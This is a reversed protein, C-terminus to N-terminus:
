ARGGEGAQAVFDATAKGHIVKQRVRLQQLPATGSGSPDRAAPSTSDPFELDEASVAPVSNGPRDGLSIRWRWRDALVRPCPIVPIGRDGGCEVPVRRRTNAQDPPARTGRRPKPPQLAIPCPQTGGSADSGQRQHCRHSMNPLPFATSTTNVGPLSTDGWPQARHSSSDGLARLLKAAALLM